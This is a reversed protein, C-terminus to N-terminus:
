EPPGPHYLAGERHRIVDGLWGFSKAGEVGPISLGDVGAVTVMDGRAALLRGIIKRIEGTAFFRPLLVMNISRHLSGHGTEVLVKHLTPHVIVTFRYGMRAGKLIIDLKERVAEPEVDKPFYVCFADERGWRAECTEASRRVTEERRVISGFLVEDAYTVAVGEAAFTLYGNRLARRSFDRLCWLGGDLEEDFGGQREMLERRLLLAAFSGHSVETVTKSSLTARKRRGQGGERELRPVIIGADSRSNALEVMPELWGGAVLTTNRVIVAFPAEVQALGRNVAKVFGQNASTKLSLAREGLIDAFEELLRETERDSGNDILIFRASPTIDMLTVLCNRTEVPRNWVPILIDVDFPAM